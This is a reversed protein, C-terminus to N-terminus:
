RTSDKINSLDFLLRTIDYLTPNTEVIKDPIFAFHYEHYPKDQRMEFRDPGHM